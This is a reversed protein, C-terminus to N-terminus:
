HRGQRNGSGRGGGWWPGCQETERGFGRPALLRELLAVIGLEVRYLHGPPQLAQGGLGVLDARGVVLGIGFPHAVLEALPTPVRFNLLEVYQVRCELM